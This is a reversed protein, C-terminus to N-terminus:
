PAAERERMADPLRRVIEAAAEDALLSTTDIAVDAISYAEVRDAALRAMRALPDDGALMPREEAGPSARLRAILVEPPAELRVVLNGDKLIARSAPDVPAGGGVSIVCHTRECAARVVDAEAARFASEGHARFYQGITMGFREVLQQDTDVLPWNLLQALWRATSSKGSGSLGILIVNGPV